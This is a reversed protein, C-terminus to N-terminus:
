EAAVRRLITEAAALTAREEASLGRLRSALWASRRRRLRAVYDAGSETIAILVQRGDTPHAERAVYGLSELAALTRTMSPPQVGEREALGRPTAAGHRILAALVCNQAESLDDAASETRIRRSLRLITVRLDTALQGSTEAARSTM